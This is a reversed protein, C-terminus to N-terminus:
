LKKYVVESINMQKLISKMTGSKIERHHPIVCTKKTAENWWIEHSGSTKRRLIFGAQRLKKIVNRYKQPKM